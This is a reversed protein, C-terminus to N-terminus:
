KIKITDPNQRCDWISHVIIKEQTIEYFLIFNDINLGRISEFDTLVGIEPQTVLLKTQKQLKAYLKKSYSKSKNRKTYFDLIEFLRITAKHSWIVVRKGM